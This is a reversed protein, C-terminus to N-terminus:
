LEGEVEERTINDCQWRTITGDRQLMDMWNNFGEDLAPEDDPGYAQVILEREERWMIALDHLSPWPDDIRHEWDYDVTTYAHIRTGCSPCDVEIWIDGDRDISLDANATDWHDLEHGCHPCDIITREERM